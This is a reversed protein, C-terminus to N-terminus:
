ATYAIRMRIREGDATDDLHNGVLDFTDDETGTSGLILWLPASRTGNAWGQVAAVLASSTPITVAGSAPVVVSSLSASKDGAGSASEGAWAQGTAYNTISPIASSAVELPRLCLYVHGTPNKWRSQVYGEISVATITAGVPLTDLDPSLLSVTWLNTAKAAPSDVTLRDVGSPAFFSNGYQNFFAAILDVDDGTNDGAVLEGPTGGGGSATPTRAKTDSAAGNGVANVARIQVDYEVGGTLTTVTRVGTGTGTLNVWSGADLRYQLTTIASGGDDPLATINLEIQEVGATATWQGVTFAAPATAVPEGGEILAIYAPYEDLTADSPVSVGQAAIASRIAAKADIIRDLESSISM